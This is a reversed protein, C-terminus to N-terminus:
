CAPPTRFAASIPCPQRARRAPGLDLPDREPRLLSQAGAGTTSTGKYDPDVYLELEKNSVLTREGGYFTTKWVNGATAPTGTNLNLSNFEDDFTLHLGLKSNECRGHRHHRRCDDEGGLMLTQGGGLDIRVDAGVQTMAAKVADFGQFGYGYLDIKDQVTGATKLGSIWTTTGPAKTPVFYDPAPAPSWCTM